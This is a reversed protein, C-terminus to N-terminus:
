APRVEFGYDPDEPADALERVVAELDGLAALSLRGGGILRLVFLEPDQSYPPRAAGPAVAVFESTLEALTLPGRERVIRYIVERAPLQESIRAGGEYPFEMATSIVLDEPSYHGEPDLEKAKARDRAAM